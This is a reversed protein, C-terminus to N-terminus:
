MEWLRFVVMNNDAPVMYWLADKTATHHIMDEYAAM